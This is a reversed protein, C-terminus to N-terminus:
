ARCARTGPPQGRDPRSGHDRPRAGHRGDGRHTGDPHPRAGDARTDSMVIVAAAGDNLPCANGATVGVTRASRRSSRHSSRSPRTPVPVTTRPSSPATPPRSRHSRVNSSGASSRRAAGSSRSCRTSTWRRAPSTKSRPWTRQPRAWTSTSTPYVRRRTDMDGPRRGCAGGLARPGPQVEPEAHEAHPGLERRGHVPEGSRRGAAIFVDGEGAKIAHAAMRMTQLSSSCYRTITCGPVPRMGALVAVVRGM